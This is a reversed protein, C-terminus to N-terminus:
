MVHCLMVDCLIVCCLVCCLIAFMSYPAMFHCLMLYSLISSQMCAYVRPLGVVPQKRCSLKLLDMTRLYNDFTMMHLGM